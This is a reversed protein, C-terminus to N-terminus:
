KWKRKRCVILRLYVYLGFVVGVMSTILILFRIQWDDVLTIMVVTSISLVEASGSMAFRMVMLIFGAFVLMSITIISGIKTLFKFLIAGIIIGIGLIVLPDLNAAKDYIPPIIFYKVLAVLIATISAKLIWKRLTMRGYGGRIEFDSMWVGRYSTQPISPLPVSHKAWGINLRAPFILGRRSSARGM